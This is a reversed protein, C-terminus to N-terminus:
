RGGGPGCRRALGRVNRGGHLPLLLVRRRLAIAAAHRRPEALVEPPLDPWTEVPCGRRVLRAHHRAAAESDAFRLALRHPAAANEGVPSLLECGEVTRWARALAGAARKLASAAEVVSGSAARALIRRAAPSLRPAPTPLMPPPDDAFSRSRLRAVVPEAFAPLTKRLLRKALWPWPSPAARRDAAAQRALQDASAQDRILLLGGDPIALTKYPSYLVADGAEGIPPAPLAAHAADEVLMAGLRDCFTRATKAEAPRGFYHVLVFFDPAGERALAEAAEWAPDLSDTVPYFVLRAGAKRAPLTAQNCFYDPLWLAPARGGRAATRWAVLAELAFAGRSYWVATELGRRWPGALVGDDRAGGAFFAALEGAGPLPVPSVM